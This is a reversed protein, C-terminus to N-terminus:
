HQGPRHAAKWCTPGSRRRKSLDYRTRRILIQEQYAIYEDLIDRLTLIRPQKQNNVLALMIIAFTTQIQTQAFLRNLVM